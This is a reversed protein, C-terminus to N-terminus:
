QVYDKIVGNIYISSINSTTQPKKILRRAEIIYFISRKLYKRAETKTSAVNIGKNESVFNMQSCKTNM